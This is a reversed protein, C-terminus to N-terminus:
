VIPQQLYQGNTNGNFTKLFLIAQSHLILAWESSRVIAATFESLTNEPSDTTMDLSDRGKPNPILLTQLDDHRFNSQSHHEVIEM